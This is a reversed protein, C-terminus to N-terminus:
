FCAGCEAVARGHDQLLLALSQLTESGLSADAGFRPLPYGLALLSRQLDLVASGTAGRHLTM